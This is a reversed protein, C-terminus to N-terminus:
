AAAGQLRRARRRRPPGSPNGNKNLLRGSDAFKEIWQKEAAWLDADEPIEDLVIAAPRHTALWKALDKNDRRLWRAHRSRWHSSVRAEVARRTRGVYVVKPFLADDDADTLGYVM